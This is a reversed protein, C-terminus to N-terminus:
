HISLTANFCVNSYTFYIDLPFNNYLVSCGVQYETVVQLPPIPHPHFFPELPLPIYTYKHSIWRTTRCFDVCCQVAITRWNFFATLLMLFFLSALMLPVRVLIFPVMVNYKNYNRCKM